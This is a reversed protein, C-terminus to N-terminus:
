GDSVTIIHKVPHKLDQFVKIDVIPLNNTENRLRIMLDELNFSAENWNGGRNSGMIPWGGLSEMYDYIVDFGLEEIRDLNVYIIFCFALEFKSYSTYIKNRHIHTLLAVYQVRVPDCSESHISSPNRM